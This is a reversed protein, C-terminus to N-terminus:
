RSIVVRRQLVEGQDTNVKVVYTGSPLRHELRVRGGNTRMVNLIRGLADLVEVRAEQGTTLQITFEAQSPNPWLAMGMVDPVDEVVTTAEPVVEFRDLGAEVIHGTAQEDSTSAMFRMTATPTIHDAIRISNFRWESMPGTSATVVSVTVMETGNSLEFVLADDPPSDGGANFFWHHFRIHPDPMGTADFLPSSLVTAGEDVDDAGASGGANGTVFAKNRCDDNVDSDPNSPAGNLDTGQPVGREWAGRSATSAVEWGLDLAFDDAAGLGLEIVLGSVDNGNVTVNAPCATHWGWRGATVTYIDEYVATFQFNGNADTTTSVTYEEGELFVTAGEVPDSTNMTRVTGDVVFNPLPDLEIDLLTVEGNALLVGDVVAPFYGPAAVQVSYSGAQVHGTGYLGSLTTVDFATTGVLSVNASGVPISTQADRVMGELWCARVYTPDLVVLGEEIDSIILRGSGFYPYVGWAGFFGGGEIPSTDYHGVEVMNEPRSVDYITVGYTYYSQVVHDTPMWYTNHPIAGSGPDSQLKDLFQIDAPDSIDYAGVFASTREDTTFLHDGSDDLWVNHTFSNPTTQTGLLVPDMPDSVDVISFFGDYIHGAYLTDGRAYGDHIYLADYEGVRVPAMPDQTLDYMIAGGNGEEAGFIYLRGNEDIFLAHSTEWGQDFFVTANLATSEPLPSMDVITLGGGNAETTIYAHDEWVKVERWISSPGSFFYVEQPDSPDSLDVISVGGPDGDNNGNVGMIAYENGDEDTYGWLNAVDSNHLSRYSLEGVFAINTQAQVANMLGCMFVLASTSRRLNTDFM